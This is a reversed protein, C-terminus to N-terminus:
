GRWRDRLAVLLLRAAHRRDAGCGHPQLDEDLEAPPQGLGALRGANFAPVLCALYRTSPDLRRPCLLRAADRQPVKGLVDAADAEGVLMAQRPGLGM